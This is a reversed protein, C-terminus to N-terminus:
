NAGSDPIQEIFDDVIKRNRADDVNEDLVKGAALIALDAVRNRLEQIAQEKEQRITRQAQELLQSAEAEGRQRVEDAVRQAAERGEAISQQVEAQAKAMASRNEELAKQAEEQARDAQALADQIRGEREDLMKLLPKWAVARLVVLLAVFTVITWIILGPEISLLM